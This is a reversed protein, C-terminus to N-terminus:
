TRGGRKTVNPGRTPPGQVGSWCFEWLWGATERPDARGATVDTIGGLLVGFVTAATREADTVSTAGSRATQKLENALLDVLPSLAIRLEDPHEESLRRHERVLVGAYGIAGPHTLMGFLGTVYAHLREVPDTRRAIAEELLVAGTRSDEELLALLLEDKGAFCGYFSKLSVGAQRAVQNVTFAASGTENALDRAASVLRQLRDRSRAHAHHLSRRLARGEWGLSEYSTESFAM